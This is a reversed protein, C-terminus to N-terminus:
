PQTTHVAFIRFPGPESNDFSGNELAAKAAALSDFLCHENVELEDALANCSLPSCEASSGASFSVVDFGSLKPNLPREVATPFSTEPEVLSWHKEDEDYEQEFIEYYFLALTARDLSEREIIEDMDSPKNFLWWGNHRWYNIYDAFDESLHGSVSHIDQVSPNKIWETRRALRKFLYGAEIMVQM